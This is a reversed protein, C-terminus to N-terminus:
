LLSASVEPARTDFKESAKEEKSASSTSDSEDDSSFENAEEGSLILNDASASLAIYVVRKLTSM